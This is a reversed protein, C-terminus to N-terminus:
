ADGAVESLRLWEESWADVKRALAQEEDALRALREWDGGPDQLLESRLM